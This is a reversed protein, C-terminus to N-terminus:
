RADGTADRSLYPALAAYRSEIEEIEHAALRREIVTANAGTQGERSRTAMTKFVGRKKMIYLEAGPIQDSINRMLLFRGFADRLLEEDRRQHLEWIKAMLDAYMANGTIVGDVGLRMAYLWNVGLHASFVAKMPPRQRIEAQLRAFLPESEEKVHGLHPFERALEV